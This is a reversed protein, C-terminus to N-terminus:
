ERRVAIWANDLAREGDAKSVELAWVDSAANPLVGAQRLAVQLRDGPFVPRRFRAAVGSIADAHVQPLARAVAVGMYGVAAMSHLPCTPLGSAQAAARDTHLQDPGAVGPVLPLLARYLEVARGDIDITEVLATGDQGGAPEFVRYEAEGIDRRAPADLLLLTHRGTALLAGAEDTTTTTHWVVTMSARAEVRSLVVSTSSRGRVPIRGHLAYEFGGVLARQGAYHRRSLESQWSGVAVSVFTPLLQPGYPELLFRRDRRLDAGVATAFVLVDRLDWSTRTSVLEEGVHAEAWADWDGQFRVDTGRQSSDV